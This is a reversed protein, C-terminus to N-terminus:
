QSNYPSFTLVQIFVIIMSNGLNGKIPLAGFNSELIHFNKFSLKWKLFETIQFLIDSFSILKLSTCSHENTSTKNRRRRRRRRSYKTEHFFNSFIIKLALIKKLGIWTGLKSGDSIKRYFANQDFSKLIIFFFQAFYNETSWRERLSFMFCNIVITCCKCFAPWFNVFFWNPKVICQQHHNWNNRAPQISFWIWSITAQILNKRQVLSTSCFKISVFYFIEIINNEFNELKIWSNWRIM